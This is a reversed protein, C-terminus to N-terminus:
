KAERAHYGPPATGADSDKSLNQCVASIGGNRVIGPVISAQPNHGCECMNLLVWAAERRCTANGEELETM